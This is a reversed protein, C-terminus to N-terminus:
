GVASFGGGLLLLLPLSLLYALRSTDVLRRLKYVCIEILQIRNCLPSQIYIYSYTRRASFRVPLPFELGGVDEVRGM